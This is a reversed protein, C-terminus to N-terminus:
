MGKGELSSFSMPDLAEGDYVIESGRSVLLQPFDLCLGRDSLGPCDSTGILESNPIVGSNM